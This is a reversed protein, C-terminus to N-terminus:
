ERCTDLFAHSDNAWTKKDFDLALFWCTEDPLLPYIGVTEKGLLHNEVVTDTLPFFKRTVRDVKKRDAPKSANITKWDKLAAPSYGSRGDPNEWRRAYIDQRGRFLNRFLAIRKRAREEKSDAQVALSTQVARVDEHPTPVSIGHAALLRRLRANEERLRKNDEDRSEFPVSESTRGTM